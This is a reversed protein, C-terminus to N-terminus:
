AAGLGPPRRFRLLIADVEDGAFATKTTDSPPAYRVTQDRTKEEIIRAERDRDLLGGSLGLPTLRRLVLLITALRILLPTRGNGDVNGFTGRVEVNLRGKPFTGAALMLSPVSRVGEQIGVRVVSRLPIESGYIAVSDLALATVPLELERSGRGDLYFTAPRPEFWWGTAADIAARAEAELEILRADSAAVPDVGEARFDEVTAYM